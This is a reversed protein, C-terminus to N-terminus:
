NMNKYARGLWVSVVIILSFMALAILYFAGVSIMFTIVILTPALEKEILNLGIKINVPIERADM